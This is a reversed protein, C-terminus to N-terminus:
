GRFKNSNENYEDKKYNSFIDFVVFGNNEVFKQIEMLTFSRM